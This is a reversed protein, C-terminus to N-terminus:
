DHTLDPTPIDAANLAKCVAEAYKVDDGDIFDGTLRLCADYGFDDDYIFVRGHPSTEVTFRRNAM